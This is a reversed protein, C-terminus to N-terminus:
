LGDTDKLRDRASRSLYKKTVKNVKESTPCPLGRPEGEEIRVINLVEIDDERVKEIRSVTISKKFPTDMEDLTFQTEAHDIVIYDGTAFVSKADGFKVIAEEFSLKEIEYENM